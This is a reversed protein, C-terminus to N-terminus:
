RPWAFVNPHREIERQLRLDGLLQRPIPLGRETLEDGYAELARLLTRRALLLDPENVPAARKARMEARAARIDQALKALTQPLMPISVATDIEM